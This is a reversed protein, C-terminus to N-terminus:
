NRDDWDDKVKFAVYFHVKRSAESSRGVHAVEVRRGDPVREDKAIQGQELDLCRDDREDGRAEGKKESHDDGAHAFFRGIRRRHFDSIWETMMLRPDNGLAM